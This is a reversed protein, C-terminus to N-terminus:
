NPATDAMEAPRGAARDLLTRATESLLTSATPSDFAAEIWATVAAVHGLGSLTRDVGLFDTGIAIGEYGARGLFPLAATEELATRLAEATALFPPGVSFGVTGGIARLRALNLASIARPSSYGEHAPAGHSYVPLLREARGADAEFWALIDSMAAPNLHALDLIPRSGSPGSANALGALVEVFSRGMDTLGRDDGVMASGALLNSATYVPQFVRVGREFLGPLRDLDAPGRILADFGEVGIVGWCLGESDDRWRALDEPGILLRGPFEAEVRAILAGLAVWPDAQRAWDDERRFCAFVAASTGQLYGETQGLRAAVGPYLDPEFVTTEAAYQLLWDCHLDILRPM